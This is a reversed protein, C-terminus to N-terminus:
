WGPPVTTQGEEPVAVYHSKLRALVDMIKVARSREWRNKKKGKFKFFPLGQGSLDVPLVKLDKGFSPTAAPLPSVSKALPVRSILLIQINMKLKPPTKSGPVPPASLTQLSELVPISTKHRM